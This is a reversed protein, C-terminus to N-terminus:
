ALLNKASVHSLFRDDSDSSVAAIMADGNHRCLWTSLASMGALQTRSRITWHLLWRRREEPSANTLHGGSELAGKLEAYLTSVAHLTVTRVPVRPGETLEEM